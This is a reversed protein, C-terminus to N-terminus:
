KDIGSIPCLRYVTTTLVFMFLKTNMSHMILRMLLSWCYASITGSLQSVRCVSGRCDAVCTVCGCTIHYVVRGIQIELLEPPALLSGSSPLSSDFCSPALIYFLPTTYDTCM